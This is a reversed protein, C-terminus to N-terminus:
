EGGIPARLSGIESAACFQMDFIPPQRTLWGDGIGDAGEGTRELLALKVRQIRARESSCSSM